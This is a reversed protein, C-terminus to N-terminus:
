PTTLWGHAGGDKGIEVVVVGAQGGHEVIGGCVLNIAGEKQAVGAV